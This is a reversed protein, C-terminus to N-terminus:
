AHHHHHYHLENTTHSNNPQTAAAAATILRAMTRFLIVFFFGGCGRKARHAKYLKLKDIGYPIGHQLLQQKICSYIIIFVHM